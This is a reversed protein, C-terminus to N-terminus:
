SAHCTCWPVACQRARAGASRLWTGLKMAVRQRNRRAMLWEYFMYQVTPNAVMVLSPVVGKWFGLIGSEQYLEQAVVLPSPAKDANAAAATSPPSVSAPKRHAQTRTAVVWIPNTLLVNGCGALSAILLSAGVGIDAKRGAQAPRSTNQLAVAAQRLGSYFYFYIGQSVATGLLAPEIGRFLGRVGCDRCIQVIDDIKNGPKRQPQSGQQADVTPKPRQNRRVAQLTAITMLPYTATLAVMGGVAGSVGEVVADSVM